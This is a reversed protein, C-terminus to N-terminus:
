TNRMILSGRCKIGVIPVLAVYWVRHWDFESDVHTPPGYHDRVLQFHRCPAYLHRCYCSHPYFVNRTGHIIECARSRQFIGRVGQEWFNGCVDQSSIPDAPQFTHTFVIYRLTIFVDSSFLFFVTLFMQIYYGAFCRTPPDTLVFSGGKM